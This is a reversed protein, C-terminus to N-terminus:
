KGGRVKISGRASGIRKVGAGGGLNFGGYLWGTFLLVLVLLWFLPNGWHFPMKDTVPNDLGIGVSTEPMVSSPNAPMGGSFGYASSATDM